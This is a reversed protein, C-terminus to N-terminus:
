TAKRTSSCTTPSSTWTSSTTRTRRRCHAPWRRSCPASWTRTWRMLTNPLYAAWPSATSTSWSSTRWATRCRSTTCRCSPRIPSSRRRARRKSARFRPPTWRAAWCSAAAKPSCRAPRNMSRCASSPLAASSARTGRRWLRPSGARAPRAKSCTAAWCCTARRSPPPTPKRTSTPHLPRTPRPPLRHPPPRLPLRHTSPPRPPLRRPPHSSRM